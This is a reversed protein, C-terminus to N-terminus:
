FSFYLSHVVYSSSTHKDRRSFALDFRYDSFMARAYSKTNVFTSCNELNLSLEETSIFSSLKRKTKRKVKLNTGSPSSCAVPTISQVTDTWLPQEEPADGEAVQKNAAAVKYYDETKVAQGGPKPVLKWKLDEFSNALRDFEAVGYEKWTVVEDAALDKQLVHPRM